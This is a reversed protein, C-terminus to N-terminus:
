PRSGKKGPAAVNEPGASKTALARPPRDNAVADLPRAPGLRQEKYYVIVREPRTRDFRVQIKRGRLDRPAELRRGFLSFTNDNKVQRLEESYFL